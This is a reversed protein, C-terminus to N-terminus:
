GKTFYVIEIELYRIIGGIANHDLLLGCRDGASISSFVVSLDIEIFQDTNGTFDYTTTTDSESNQNFPEGITAYDSFLDINKGAGAAGATPNGTIVLKILSFFDNPIRFTFRSEANAAINKVRFDGLDADYESNFTASNTSRRHLDVAWQSTRAVIHASDGVVSLEWTSRGSIQEAGDPTLIVKNFDSTNKQITAEMEQNSALAPLDVIVEGGSTDVSLLGDGQKLTYPSDSFDIETVKRKTFLQDLANNLTTGPVVSDNNVQSSVYDNAAAVVAGTRGFVSDVPAMTSDLTNLADKVTTGSVGSDNDVLSAAYDNLVPVVVGVRSNFSSVTGISSIDDKLQQYTQNTSNNGAPNEWLTLAADDPVAQNGYGSYKKGDNAM